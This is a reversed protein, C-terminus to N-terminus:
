NPFSPFLMEVRLKRALEDKHGGIHDSHDVLHILSDELPKALEDPVDVAAGPNSSM